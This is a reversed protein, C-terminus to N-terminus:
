YSTLYKSKEMRSVLPGRKPDRPRLQNNWPREFTQTTPQPALKSQERAVPAQGTQLRTPYREGSRLRSSPGHQSPKRPQRSPKNWRKQKTRQSKYIYKGQPPTIVTSMVCARCSGDSSTRRLQCVPWASPTSSISQQQGHDTTQCMEPVTHTLGTGTLLDMIKGKTTM